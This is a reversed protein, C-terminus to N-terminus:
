SEADNAIILVRPYPLSKSCLPTYCSCCAISFVVIRPSTKRQSSHRMTASHRFATKAFQQFKGQPKRLRVKLFQDIATDIPTNGTCIETADGTRQRGTLRMFGGPVHNNACALLNMNANRRDRKLVPQSRPM